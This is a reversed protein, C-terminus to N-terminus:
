YIIIVKTVFKFDFKLITVTISLSNIFLVNSSTIERINLNKGTIVSVMQRIIIGYVHLTVQALENIQFVQTQEM